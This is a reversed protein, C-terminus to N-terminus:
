ERGETDFLDVIDCRLRVCIKHLTALTVNQRAQELRNLSGANIGIRRAFERQTAEGRLKKLKKALRQHFKTM